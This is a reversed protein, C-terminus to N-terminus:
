PFLFGCSERKGRRQKKRHQTEKKTQKRRFHHTIFVFGVQVTEKAARCWDDRRKGEWLNWAKVNTTMKKRLLSESNCSRFITHKSSTQCVCILFRFRRHYGESLSLTSYKLNLSKQSQKSSHLAYPAPTGM